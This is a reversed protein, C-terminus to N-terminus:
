IACTDRDNIRITEFATIIVHKEGAWSLSSVKLEGIGVSYPAAGGTLDIIALVSIEDNRRISAVKNGDPSISMNSVAPLDGYVEIPPLPSQAQGTNVSMIISVSIAFLFRLM